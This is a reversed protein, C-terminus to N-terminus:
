QQDGSQQHPQERTVPVPDRTSLWRRYEASGSSAPRQHLRRIADPLQADAWAKEDVIGDIKLPSTARHIHYEVKENKSQAFSFLSNLLLFSTLLNKLM